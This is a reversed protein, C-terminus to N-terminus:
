RNRQRDRRSRMGYLTNLFFQTKECNVTDGGEGVDSYSAGLARLAIRTYLGIPQYNKYLCYCDLAPSPSTAFKRSNKSFVCYKIFM